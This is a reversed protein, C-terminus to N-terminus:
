DEGAAKPISGDGAEETRPGRPVVDSRTRHRGCAGRRKADDDFVVAECEHCVFLELYASPDDLYDAAFLSRVRDALKMRSGDVPIFVDHGDADIGKHVLGRELAGEAFDLIGTRLAAKELSAFLQGRVRALLDEVLEDDLDADEDLGAVREGRPVHRTAGAYPGTLWLVLDLKDWGAAVGSMFALAAERCQASVTARSVGPELPRASPSSPGKVAYAKVYEVTAEHPPIV